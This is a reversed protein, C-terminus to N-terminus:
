KVALSTVNAIDKNKKATEISSAFIGFLTPNPASPPAMAVVAMKNMNLRFHGKECALRALSQFNYFLISARAWLCGKHTTCAKNM